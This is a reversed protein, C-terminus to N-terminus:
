SGGVDRSAAEVIRKLNRLSKWTHNSLERRLWLRSLIHGFAGRPVEYEAVFSVRTGRETPEFLWASISKVGSASTSVLRRNPVFEVIDLETTVPVGGLSGAVRARAGRGRTKETLAEFRYFGEMWRLSNRFDAVFEFVSEVPAAIEISERIKPM